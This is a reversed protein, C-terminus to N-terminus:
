AGDQWPVPFRRRELRDCAVDATLGRHAEAAMHQDLIAQAPMIRQAVRLLEWGVRLVSTLSTTTAADSRELRKGKSDCTLAQRTGCHCASHLVARRRASRASWAITDMDVFTVRGVDM